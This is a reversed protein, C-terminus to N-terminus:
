EDRAPRVSLARARRGDIISTPFVSVYDFQLIISRDADVPVCTWYYGNFNVNILSSNTGSRYGSSPFFIFDSKAERDVSFWWGNKFDASTPVDGNFAEVYTNAGIRNFSGDKTFGTFAASAPVHYGIPCPDYVTKVVADATIIDEDTNGSWWWDTVNADVSWDFPSISYGDIGFGFHVGPNQIATGVSVKDFSTQYEKFRGITPLSGEKRASVGPHLPDKRGFQFFPSYGDLDLSYDVHEPRTVEMVAYSGQLKDQEVRVYVTEPKWTVTTSTGIEVWGLNRSMLSFRKNYDPHSLVAKDDTPKYNTVWLLWSWMVTGDQDEVAVNVLGQRIKEKDIHFNLWYVADDGEGTKTIGPGAINWDTQNKVDVLYSDEWVVFASTPIGASESTKQLYPNVIPKDKYDFYRNAAYSSTNPVNNKVGNGAVMPIRYWGPAGVIYTNATELNKDGGNEPNALNWPKDETGKEPESALEADIKDRFNVIVTEPDAQRYDIHIPYNGGADPDNPDFNDMFGMGDLPNTGKEADEPTPYYGAIIWPEPVINGDPDIKYSIVVGTDSTTGDYTLDNPDKTDIVYTIDDRSLIYTTLCGQQWNHGAIPIEVTKKDTSVILVAGEPCEQPLLMLTYDEKFVDYGSVETTEPDTITYTREGTVKDKSEWTMTEMNFVGTDYIGSVKVEKIQVSKGTKFTIGALAHQFVLEVQSQEASPNDKRAVPGAVMLGRQDPISEPVTYTLKPATGSTAALEAADFPAFAYFEIMKQKNPWLYNETPTWLKASANYTVKVPNGYLAKQATPAGEADYTYAWATFPTEELGKESSYPIGRTQVDTTLSALFSVDKKPAFEMEERSCSVLAAAISLVLLLSLNRKM